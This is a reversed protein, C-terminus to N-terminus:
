EQLISDLKKLLAEKEQKGLEDNLARKYAWDLHKIDPTILKDMGATISMAIYATRIEVFNHELSVQMKNLAVCAINGAPTLCWVTVRADIDKKMEEMAADVKDKPLSYVKDSWAAVKKSVRGSVTKSYKTFEEIGKFRHPYDKFEPLMPANQSAYGGAEYFKCWRYIIERELEIEYRKVRDTKKITILLEHALTKIKDAAFLMKRHEEPLM